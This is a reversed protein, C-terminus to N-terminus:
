EPHGVFDVIDDPVDSDTTCEMGIPKNLALYVRQPKFNLPRGDLSVEDGAAVKTGLVANVGNVAVRGAEIWQDAQRRSCVGTESLFKNIRVSSDAM